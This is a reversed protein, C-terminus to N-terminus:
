RLEQLRLRAELLYPNLELAKNLAERPATRDGLGLSALGAALHAGAQRMWPPRGEGFKAFFASENRGELAQRAAALLAEYLQRARASQGLKELSRAQYYLLAAGADISPHPEEDSGLLAGASEKWLRGAEDKRGAAEAALGAWYYAEPLRSGRYGRTVELNEPYEVAALYNKWAAEYDKAAMRAHGRLLHADTWADQVNFRAGGEWLHFHRKEMIRIAEDHRGALTLLTVLRSMSDDRQEATRRHKEFLALRQELPARAFEYLRDLEFLYLADDPKLSIAKELAEIARPVGGDQRSFAVALNRWAIAFGPELEVTRQWLRVAEEPQRDYLLLGLYYPARADRPQAAIADRLVRTMEIQFPFVYDHPLSSAFRYHAAATEPQGFRQMLWGRLYRAQVNSQPMRDLLWNAELLMGAELCDLAMELGEAPQERFIRALEAGDRSARPDIPDIDRIRQRMQAAEGGRGERELLMSKLFLAPTHRSNTELARECHGLAGELDGAAARIQAIRYHSAAKWAHNWAARRLWDEAEQLRGQYQLALGIYYLADGDKPRTYNASVRTVARRLLTEAQAFRGRKICLIALATNNRADGPDRRLAEEYYPDPELAPNHFQELRLGTLYLEETTAVDKPPKPPVVAAPLPLKAGPAAQPEPQWSVLERGGADSLSARLEHPQVGAPLPVTHKLPRAPDLEGSWQWLPQGNRSLVARANRVPRTVFFGVAAAGGPLELNVAADRTANKVGGITHFPYWYQTVSKVEFPQLWSYDPQNDSWAGVMLELYPGDTDSLIKDWLKGSPGVGWTFFKKGPVQHHDAVHLTGAQIGHDYGALWDDSDNWAFMSIPSPHNKWWSVDVGRTFDVGGYITDAIPWRAFERKAHQTAFKTAPPFIVQYNENTHVAVNAFYLLSNQVPTTNLATVRAELLSSGPRLTLTIAWRMRDRLELEGVSVSKSGDKHEHTRYLVPMFSTARHHHPINWEVGGSIWAGLMGILAPKIVSQKYFFNYGNTKDVAEFIRGGLEPLVCVRIYENELCVRRWSVDRKEGTLADQMAYPYVMGKAGQYVRGTYFVPNKDPPGALYTPIVVTDEILRVQAALPLALLALALLVRIM